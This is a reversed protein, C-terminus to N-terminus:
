EYKLRIPEIVLQEISSLEQYLKIIKDLPGAATAQGTLEYDHAPTYLEVGKAKPDVTEHLVVDSMAVEAAPHNVGQKLRGGLEGNYVHFKFHMSASDIQRESHIAMKHEPEAAVAERVLKTTEDDAVVHTVQRALGLKEKISQVLSDGALGIEDNFFVEAHPGCAGVFGRIFGRTYEEPGEIVLEAYTRGM